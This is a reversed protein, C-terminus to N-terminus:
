DGFSYQQYIRPFTKSSIDYRVETVSPKPLPSAKDAVELDAFPMSVADSILHEKKGCYRAGGHPTASHGRSEAWRLNCTLRSACDRCLRACRIGNEGDAVQPPVRNPPPIVFLRGECLCRFRSSCEPNAVKAIM